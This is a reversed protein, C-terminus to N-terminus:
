SLTIIKIVLYIFNAVLIADRVFRMFYVRTIKVVM